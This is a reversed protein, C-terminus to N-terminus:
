REKWAGENDLSIGYDSREALAHVIRSVAKRELIVEYKAELIEMIDKIRIHNGDITEKEIITYIFLPALRKSSTINNSQHIKDQIENMREDYEEQGIKEDEYLEDLEMIENVYKESKKYDM